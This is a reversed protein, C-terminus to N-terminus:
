LVEAACSNGIDITVIIGMVYERRHARAANANAMRSNGSLAV